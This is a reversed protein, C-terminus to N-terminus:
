LKCVDVDVFNKVTMNKILIVCMDVRGVCIDVKEMCIVVRKCKSGSM